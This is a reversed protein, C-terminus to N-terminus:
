IVNGIQNIIVQSYRNDLKFTDMRIDIRLIVHRNLKKPM